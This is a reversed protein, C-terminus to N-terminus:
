KIEEEAKMIYLSEGEKTKYMPRKMQNKASDGIEVPISLIKPREGQISAIINIYFRGEKLSFPELDITFEENDITLPFNYNKHEVGKLVKKRPYVEVSLVGDSKPTSLTIHVKSPTDVDVHESSYQIKISSGGKQRMKSTDGKLVEYVRKPQAMFYLLVLLTGMLAIMWVTKIKKM